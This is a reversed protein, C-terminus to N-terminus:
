TKARYSLQYLTRSFISLDGSRRRDSGGALGRLKRKTAKTKGAATKGKLVGMRCGRVRAGMSRVHGREHAREGVPADARRVPADASRVCWSRCRKAWFTSWRARPPGNEANEVSTTQLKPVVDATSAAVAGAIPPFQVVHPDSVGGVRPWLAEHRAFGWWHRSMSRTERAPRLVWVGCRGKAGGPAM